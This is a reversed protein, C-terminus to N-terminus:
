DVEERKVSFTAAGDKHMEQFLCDDCLGLTLKDVEKGCNKCVM